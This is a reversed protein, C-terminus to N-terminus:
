LCSGSDNAGFREHEPNQLLQAYRSQPYQAIIKNKMAIAKDKDIIQYILYLNYMSPLILREEPNNNLLQELKSASLKYEKFKEKYIVGLQYYAFNRDKALSDLVKQSTPLQKIYFEPTYKEEVIAKDAKAKADKAQISDSNEAIPRETAVEDTNKLSSLRWNNKLTRTGWRKRFEVKGYAVTSPNYFYFTENKGTASTTKGSLDSNPIPKKPILQKKPDTDMLRDKGDASKVNAMDDDSDNNRNEREAKEQAAKELKAKEADAKKLKVIYDEYFSKKDGDSLAVINLISDNQQAIAEYKIVDELNDRKKKIAKYERIKTNMHILTSDYYQGAMQYKANDFYIKALNRYNSAILYADDTKKKLSRNYFKIAQKSNHQKDYFLGM